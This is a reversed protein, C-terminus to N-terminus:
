ESGFGGLVKRKKKIEKRMKKERKKKKKTRKIRRIILQKKIRIHKILFNVLNIPFHTHLIKKLAGRDIWLM